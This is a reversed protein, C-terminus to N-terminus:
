VTTVKRQVKKFLQVDNDGFYQKWEIIYGTKGRFVEIISHTVSNKM